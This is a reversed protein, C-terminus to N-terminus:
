FLRQSSAGLALPSACEESKLAVRAISEGLNVRVREGAHVRHAQRETFIVIPGTDLRVVIEQATEPAVKHELADSDFAHLDRMAPVVRVSEVTGSSSGTTSVPCFDFDQLAYSPGSISFMAGLLLPALPTV